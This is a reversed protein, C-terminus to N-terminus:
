ALLLVLLRNPVLFGLYTNYILDLTHGLILSLLVSIRSHVRVLSLRAVIVPPIDAPPDAVRVFSKARLTAFIGDPVVMKVTVLLGMLIYM